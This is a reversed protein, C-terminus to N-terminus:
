CWTSQDGFRLSMGAATPCSATWLLGLDRRLIRLALGWSLERREGADAPGGGLYGATASRGGLAAAKERSTRAILAV